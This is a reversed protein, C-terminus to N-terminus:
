VLMETASALSPCTSYATTYAGSAPSSYAARRAAPGGEVAPGDVDASPIGAVRQHHAAGGDIVAAIRLPVEGDHPIEVVPSQVVTPEPRRRQIQTLHRRAPRSTNKSHRSLGHSKAAPLRSHAPPRPQTVVSPPVVM